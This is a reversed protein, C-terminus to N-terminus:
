FKGEAKAKALEKIVKNRWEGKEKKIIFKPIEIGLEQLKPEHLIHRSCYGSPSEELAQGKCLEQGGSLVTRYSCLKEQKVHNIEKEIKQKEQEQTIATNLEKLYQVYVDAGYINKVDIPRTVFKLKRLFILPYEQVGKLVPIQKLNKYTKSDKEVVAYSDRFRVGNITYNVGRLTHKIVIYERDRGSSKTTWVSM